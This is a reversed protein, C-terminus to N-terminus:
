LRKGTPAAALGGLGTCRLSAPLQRGVVHMCDIVEDLPLMARFGGQVADAAVAAIWEGSRATQTSSSAPMSMWGTPSSSQRRSPANAPWSVWARSPTIRPTDTSYSPWTAANFVRGSVPAAKAPRICGIMSPMLM